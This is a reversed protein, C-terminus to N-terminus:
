RYPRRVSSTSCSSMNPHFLALVAGPATVGVQIPCSRGQDPWSARPWRGGQAGRWWGQSSHRSSDVGRLVRAFVRVRVVLRGRTAAIPAREEQHPKLNSAQVAGKADQVTEFSLRQGQSLSTIGALEISKKHVFIDKGGDEPTIFGFGKATSFFKVTGIAM